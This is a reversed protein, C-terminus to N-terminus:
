ASSPMRSLLGDRPSPSTYLLCTWGNHVFIDIANAPAYTREPATLRQSSASAVAGDALALNVSEAKAHAPPKFPAAFAPGALLPGALAVTAIAALLGNRRHTHLNMTLKGGSQNPSLPDGNLYGQFRVVVLHQPGPGQQAAVDQAQSRSPPGLHLGGEM